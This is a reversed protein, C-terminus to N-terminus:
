QQSGHLVRLVQVRDGAIRYAAVYPTRQVVLERTGEIRGERGMEPFQALGEVSLRIRDDVAIAAQPNDTEIYDFVAERDAIAFASWQLIM